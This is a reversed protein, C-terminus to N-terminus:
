DRLETAYNQVLKTFATVGAGKSQYERYVMYFFGAKVALVAVNKAFNGPM